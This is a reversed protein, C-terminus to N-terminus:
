GSGSQLLLQQDAEADFRVAVLERSCHRRVSARFYGRSSGCLASYILLTPALLARIRKWLLQEPPADNRPVFRGAIHGNSDNVYTKVKAYACTWGSVRRRWAGTGAAPRSWSRVPM